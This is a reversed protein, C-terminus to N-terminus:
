PSPQTGEENVTALRRRRNSQLDGMDNSQEEAGEGRREEELAEMDNNSRKRKSSIGQQIYEEPNRDRLVHRMATRCMPCILVGESASVTQRMKTFCCICMVKHGCPLFRVGSPNNLCMLCEPGNDRAADFTWYSRSHFGDRCQDPKILAPVVREIFRAGARLTWGLTSGSVAPLDPANIWSPLRQNNRGELMDALKWPVYYRTFRTRGVHVRPPPVCFSTTRIVTVSMWLIRLVPNLFPNEQGTKEMLNFLEDIQEIHPRNSPPKQRATVKEICQLLMRCKTLFDKFGHFDLDVNRNFIRHLRHARRMDDPDDNNEKNYHYFAVLHGRTLYQGEALRIGFLYELAEQDPNPTSFIATSRSATHVRGMTKEKVRECKKAIDREVEKSDRGNIRILGVTADLWDQWDEKTFPRFWNPIEATTPAVGNSM